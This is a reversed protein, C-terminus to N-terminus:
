WSSPNLLKDQQVQINEIRDILSPPLDNNASVIDVLQDKHDIGIIVYDIQDNQLVYGLCLNLISTNFQIALNQVENIIPALPKIKLPLDSSKRFLLGQLFVSRIHIEVGKNKLLDFYPEFKRDLINYPVQVIDPCMGAELLELLESPEYLSYGIKSIKGAAKYELLEGWLDSNNILEDVDHFLCGYINHRKLQRFSNELQQKLSNKTSFNGIKTVIQHESNSFQGVRKEAEGYQVATDFLNIGVKNALAFISNLVEDSPIGHTNAIGYDLGWQVTGLGIKM